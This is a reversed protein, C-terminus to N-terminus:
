SGVTDHQREPFLARDLTFTEPLVLLYFSIGFLIIHPWVAEGFFFLSLTLYFLSVLITLRMEFGFIIFLGIACEVLGAGLVVLLPDSPFLFHYQTLNWDTVVKLTIEPHLLKVSVAAYILGLGYAVRVITSDYQVFRKFRVLPGFIYRDLSFSRMGFLVLIILEGVYNLYSFLYSGYEFFGITFVVLALVAGIETFLGLAILISAMFLLLRILLAAPFSQLDIEPGLFQLTWASIFFSIAVCLRLIVPGYAAFREPFEHLRIGLKTRRMYLNLVLAVTVAFAIYVTMRIDAPNSWVSLLNIVSDGSLTNWFYEHPLVYAEHAYTFFLPFSSALFTTIILYIKKM